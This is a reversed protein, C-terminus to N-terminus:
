EYYFVKRSILVGVILLIVSVMLFYIWALASGYGFQGDYFTRNYIYNLTANDTNMFSDVISYITNVLILPSIMPFTIKWFNEWGTAGEVNSAEYLSPNIGYLGSLFIFIQLGSKTIISFVRRMPTILFQLTSEPVGIESLYKEIRLAEMFESIGQNDAIAQGLQMSNLVGVQMQLRYFVGSALMISLFFITKFAGSGRFKQNLLVAVLFSFIIIVPVDTVLNTISSALLRVFNTDKTFSDIYNQVGVFTKIIERDGIKINHFGYEFTQFIPIVFFLIVGALWPLLFLIGKRNRNRILSFYKKKV